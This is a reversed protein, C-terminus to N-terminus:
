SRAVSKTGRDGDHSRKVIATFVRDLLIVMVGMLNIMASAASPAATGAVAWDVIALGWAVLLGDIVLPEICLVVTVRWVVIVCREVWAVICLFGIIDHLRMVRDCRIALERQREIVIRECRAVIRV